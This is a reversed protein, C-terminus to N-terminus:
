IIIKPKVIDILFIFIRGGRDKEFFIYMDPDSYLELEVKTINLMADWSLVPVSLYHSPCLGYNKLSYNRFKESVDPLLLVDCKLYLHHYDKVTKM